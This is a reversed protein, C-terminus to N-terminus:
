FYKQFVNDFVCLGKGNQLKLTIYMSFVRLITSLFSNFESKKDSFEVSLAMFIKLFLGWSTTTKM